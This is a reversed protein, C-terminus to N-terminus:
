KLRSQFTAPPPAAAEGTEKELSQHFLKLIRIRWYLGVQNLVVKEAIKSCYMGACGAGRTSKEQPRM